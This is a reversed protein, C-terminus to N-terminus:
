LEVVQELCPWRHSRTLMSLAKDLRTKFVELFPFLVFGRPVRSLQRVIRITFFNRREQKVKQRNGRM